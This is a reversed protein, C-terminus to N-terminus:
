LSISKRINGFITEGTKINGWQVILQKEEGLYITGFSGTIIYYKSLKEIEAKNDQESIKELINKITDSNKESINELLSFEPFFDKQALLLELENVRKELEVSHSSKQSLSIEGMGSIYKKTNKPFLGIIIKKFSYFTKKGGAIIGSFSVGDKVMDYIYPIRYWEGSIAQVFGVLAIFFVGVTLWSFFSFFSGLVWLIIFLIFLIFSQSAHHQIFKSDRRTLLLIPSLILFYSAAATDKNELIDSDTIPNEDIKKAEELNELQENKTKNMKKNEM